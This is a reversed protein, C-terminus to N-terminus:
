LSKETPENELTDNLMFENIKTLDGDYVKKGNEDRNPILFSYAYENIFKLKEDRSLSNNDNLLINKIEDRFKISFDFQEPFYESIVGDYKSDFESINKARETGLGYSYNKGLFDLVTKWDKRKDYFNYEVLNNNELQEFFTKTHIHIKDIPVVNKGDNSLYERSIYEAGQPKFFDAGNCIHITSTEINMIKELADPIKEDIEYKVKYEGNEDIYENVHNGAFVSNRFLSFLVAKIPSDTAYVYKGNQTSEQALLLDVSEPSGHYLIEPVDSLIDFKGDLKSYNHIEENSKKLMSDYIDRIPLYSKMRAEYALMELDLKSSNILSQLKVLYNDKKNQDSIFIHEISKTLENSITDLDDLKKYHRIIGKLEKSEVDLNLETGLAILFKNLEEKFNKEINFRQLIDNGNSSFKILDEFGKSFILNNIQVETLESSFGSILLKAADVNKGYNSKSEGMRHNEAFKEAYLQVLGETMFHSFEDNLLETKQSITPRIFYHFIEHVVLSDICSKIIEDDNRCNSFSKSFPYIHIKNDGKTRGGHASPIHESSFKEPDNVGDQKSFFEVDEKTLKEMIIFQTELLNDILSLQESTLSSGYENKMCTLIYKGYENISNQVKDYDISMNDDGNSYVNYCKRHNKAIQSLKIIM